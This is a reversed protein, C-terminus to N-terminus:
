LYVWGFISKQLKIEFVTNVQHDNDVPLTSTTWVGNTQAMATTMCWAPSITSKKFNMKQCKVYLIQYEKVMMKDDVYLQNTQKKQKKQKMKEVFFFYDVKTKQLM